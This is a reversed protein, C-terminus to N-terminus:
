QRKKWKSYGLRYLGLVVNFRSVRQAYRGYEDGLKETCFREEQIAHALFLIFVAVSLLAILWHQSTLTFGAAILIYGLYQPHRVVAYLGQDVVQTTHMYDQGDEGGGYKRLLFFPPFIFIVVSLLVFGGLLDFVLIDGQELFQNLILISALFVAAAWFFVYEEVHTKKRGM